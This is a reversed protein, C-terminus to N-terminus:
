ITHQVFLKWMIIESLLVSSDAFLFNVYHVAHLCMVSVTSFIDLCGFDRFYYVFAGGSTVLTPVCVFRLDVILTIVFRNDASPLLYFACKHCVVIKM